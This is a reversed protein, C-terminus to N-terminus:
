LVIRKFKLSSGGFNILLGIKLKTAKLYNLVQSEHSSELNSVAKLELLVKGFCVFDAQYYKDLCVGKYEINIKEEKKFPIERILFERKLAEQYVPELFGCGLENYVEYCAGIIEYTLDSNYFNM